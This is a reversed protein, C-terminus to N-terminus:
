FKFYKTDEKVTKTIEAKLMNVLDESVVNNRKCVIFIERFIRKADSLEQPSLQIDTAKTQQKKESFLSM